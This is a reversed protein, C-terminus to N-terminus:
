PSPSLLITLGNALAALIAAAIGVPTAFEDWRHDAYVLVALIVATTIALAITQHLWHEAQLFALTAVQMVLVWTVYVIGGLEDISRTGWRPQEPSPPHDSAYRLVLYLAGTLVVGVLIAAVVRWRRPEVVSAAATSASGSVSSSPPEPSSMARGAVVGLGFALLNATVRSGSSHDSSATV